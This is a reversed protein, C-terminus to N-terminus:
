IVVNSWKCVSLLVASFFCGLLNIIKTLDDIVETGMAFFTNEPNKGKCKINQRTM